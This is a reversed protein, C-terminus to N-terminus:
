HGIAALAGAAVMYAVTALHVITDSPKGHRKVIIADAAPSITGIFLGASLLTDGAFTVLILLGALVFDRNAKVELYPTPDIGEPIPVGFGRAAARPMLASRATLVLLGLALIYTMVHSIIM